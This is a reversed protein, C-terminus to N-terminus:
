WIRSETNRKGSEAPEQPVWALVVDDVAIDGRTVHLHGLHDDFLGLAQELVLFVHDNQEVGDRTEGAGVVRQKDVSPRAKTLCVEKVGDAM